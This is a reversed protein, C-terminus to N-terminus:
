FLVCVCQSQFISKVEPVLHLYLNDCCLLVGLSDDKIKFRNIFDEALKITTETDVWANKQFYM